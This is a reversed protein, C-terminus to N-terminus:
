MLCMLQRKQEWCFFLLTDNCQLVLHKGDGTFSGTHVGFFQKKWSNNTAQITLMQGDSLNTTKYMFYNGDNTLIADTLHPWKIIALSDIIPKQAFTLSSYFALLFLLTSPKM